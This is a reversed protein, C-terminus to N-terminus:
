AARLRPLLALANDRGIARLDAPSLGLEGLRRTTEELPVFPNDTGLLLQSTPVLSTLAAVNPRFAAAALDFHLRRLEEAIGGPARAAVDKPPFAIMRAYVMPLNGGAHTFILKVKRFRALTGTYLLNGIARATEQPIEEIVPPLDPLLTRCCFPVSPHVFAVAGRRDLEEFVPLYAPDGLWRDGYSTLLGVGDAKLVDLAHELERLSGDQDPLPLAAFLGFRGPHSRVLEAGYENVRRALTRSQAVDGFWVGPATVSLVGTEVGARDMAELAREPTWEFYARSMMGGFAAAIQDRHESVWFPPVHHHHVDVLGGRAPTARRPQARDGAGGLLAVGAVGLGAAGLRALFARRGGAAAGGVVREATQRGDEGM